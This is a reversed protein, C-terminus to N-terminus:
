RRSLRKLETIMSLICERRKTTNEKGEISSFEAKLKEIEKIAWHDTNNVDYENSYKEDGTNIINIDPIDNHLIIIKGNPRKLINILNSTLPYYNDFYVKFEDYYDDRISDVADNLYFKSVVIVYGVSENIENDIINLLFMNGSKESEVRLNYYNLFSKIMAIKSIGISSTSTSIIHKCESKNLIDNVIDMFIATTKGTQREWPCITIKSSSNILKQQYERMERM